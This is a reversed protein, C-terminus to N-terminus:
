LAFFLVRDVTFLTFLAFTYLCSYAFLSMAYSNNDMKYLKFAGWCFRLTLGLSIVTSVLYLKGIWGLALVCPILTLTYLFMVKRTRRDGYVVPYMPIGAQEYDKKYKLCLAWFHPPTWLVIIAFLLWSAMNLSGSVSAAGILPGVAGAAGGIVINQPTSQKLYLTYVFVYFLHGSAAVYATLPNIYFYLLFFSGFGLLAGVTSAFPLSIKESPLSRTRTRKMKKDVDAEFIQNFMAASASSGAAGILTMVVKWFHFETVDTMFIAPLTTIVVLLTITPKTMSLAIRLNDWWSVHTSAHGKISDSLMHVSDELEVTSEKPSPSSPPIKM